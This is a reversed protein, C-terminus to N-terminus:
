KPSLRMVTGSENTWYVSTADVAIEYPMSQNTAITEGNGGDLGDRIVTRSSRNTFYGHQGDVAIGFPMSQNTAIAMPTAGGALPLKNVSGDDSRAYYVSTADVAIYGLSGQGSALQMQSS